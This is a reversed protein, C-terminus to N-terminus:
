GRRGYEYVYTYILHLVKDRTTLNKAFAINLYKGNFVAFEEETVYESWASYDTLGYAETDAAIESEVYKMNEDYDFLNYFGEAEDSVALLGNAVHNINFATTLTYRDVTKYTIEASILKTSVSTAVGGFFKVTVFDHGIYEEANDYDLMVYKNLTRDYLGHMNVVELKEGNGFSLGLIPYAEVRKAFLLSIPQAEYRGEFHDYTLIVDGLKLEEVRKQSGDAMTLLTGTIFCSPGNKKSTTNSNWHAYLKTVTLSNYVTNAEIKDGGKDSTYWGTFTYTTTYTYKGETRVWNGRALTPLSNNNFAGYTKDFEVKIEGVANGDILEIYYPIAEWGAYLTTDATRDWKNVSNMKGDYYQKNNVDYYGTFNYGVRTPYNAAPMDYGYVAQVSETGAVVDDPRKDLIEQPINLNLTVTYSTGFKGHLTVNDRAIDWKRVANLNGDYYQIGDDSFYGLFTGTPLDKPPMHNAKNELVDFEGYVVDTAGMPTPEKTSSEKYDFKVKYTEGEWKYYFADVSLPYNFTEANVANAYKEDAFWGEGSAYGAPIETIVPLSQGQKSAEINKGYILSLTKPMDQSTTYGIGYNLSVTGVWKAYLPIFPKGDVNDVNAKNNNVMELFASDTTSSVTVATGSYDAARYWGGFSWSGQASPSSLSVPQGYRVTYYGDGYVDPIEGKATEYKIRASWVANLQIPKNYDYTESRLTDSTVEGFGEATWKEEFIWGNYTFEPIAQGEITKGYVVTLKSTGEEIVKNFTIDIETKDYFTANPAGKYIEDQNLKQGGGFKQNFWGKFAIGEVDNGYSMVPLENLKGNYIVGLSAKTPTGLQKSADDVLGASFNVTSTWKAYLEKEGEGKYNEVSNVRKDANGDAEFLGNDVTYYGGFQWKHTDDVAIPNETRVNLPANYVVNTDSVKATTAKGSADLQRHYTFTTTRVAYLKLIGSKADTLNTDYKTERTWDIGSKGIGTNWGSFTWGGESEKAPRPLTLNGAALSDGYTIYYPKDAEEAKPTCGQYDFTVPFKVKAYIKDTAGFTYKDGNAIKKEAGSEQKLYWGTFVGDNGYEPNVLGEVKANYVVPVTTGVTNETKFTPNVVLNATWKAYLKNTKSLFKGDTLGDKMQDSETDPYWGAFTWGKVATKSPKAWNATNTQAGYTVKKSEYAGGLMEDVFTIEEEIFQAEAVVDENWFYPQSPKFEADHRSKVVWKFEHCGYTPKPVDEAKVSEGGEVFASKSLTQNFDDTSPYKFTVSFTNTELVKVRLTAKVETKTPCSVTIKVEDAASKATFSGSNKKDFALAEKNDSEYVFEGKETHGDDYRLLAFVEGSGGVRINEGCTSSLEISVVDPSTTKPTFVYLLGGAICACLVIGSIIITLIIKLKGNARTKRNTDKM